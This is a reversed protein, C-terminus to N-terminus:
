PDHKDGLARKRTVDFYEIRRVSSAGVLIPDGRAVGRTPLCVLFPDGPLIAIVEQEHERYYAPAPKGVEVVFDRGNHSYSLRFVRKEPAPMAAGVFKAVSALISEAESESSAHPIFFEM